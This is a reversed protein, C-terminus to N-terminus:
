WGLPAAWGVYTKPLPRAYDGHASTRLGLGILAESFKVAAAVGDIVPVGLADAAAQEAKAKVFGPLWVGILLTWALALGALSAVTILIRRVARSLRPDAPVPDTSPVPTPM